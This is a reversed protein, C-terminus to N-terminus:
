FAARQYPALLATIKPPWDESDGSTPGVWYDIRGVGQVEESRILPDRKQASWMDKVMEVVAQEIDPELTTGLAYGATYQVVTKRFAWPIPYDNCLRVLYAVQDVGHLEYDTDQVLAIGDETVSAIATVPTRSLYIKRPLNTLSASDIIPYARFRDSVEESVIEGRCYRAAARSATAIYGTLLTDNKSTTQGLEQKVRALTTLNKSTAPTIITLDRDM